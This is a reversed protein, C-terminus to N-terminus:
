QKENEIIYFISGVLLLDWNAGSIYFLVAISGKVSSKNTTYFYKHSFPTFLSLFLSFSLSLSLSFFFSSFFFLLFDNDFQFLHELFLPLSLSSSAIICFTVCFLCPFSNLPLLTLHLLTLCPPPPLSPPLSPICCRDCSNSINMMLKIERPYRAGSREM